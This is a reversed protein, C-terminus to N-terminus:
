LSSFSMLVSIVRVQYGPVNSDRGVVRVRWVVVDWSVCEGCWWTGCCANVIGVVIGCWHVPQPCVKSSPDFSISDPQGSQPPFLNWNLGDPAVVSVSSSADSPEPGVSPTGSDDLASGGSDSRGSESAEDTASVTPRAVVCSRSKTEGLGSVGAPEPSVDGDSVESRDTEESAEVGESAEVEEPAESDGFGEGGTDGSEADESEEGESEADESEEGESEADGSGSASHGSSQFSAGEL